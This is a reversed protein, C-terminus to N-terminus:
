PNQRKRNHFELSSPMKSVTITSTLDEHLLLKRKKVEVETMRNNPYRNIIRIVSNVKLDNQQCFDFYEKDSGQLRSVTYKEGETAQSLPLVETNGNNFVGSADPIPDGHPDTTPHGLFLSLKETLFDSTFHELQEAERHIEHMSLGFVRHLFTEWLRHKRIVGLAMKEGESTLKLERYKTYDLLNKASLKRAMDTAAANTIGLERAVTGPRTNKGISNGLTYVTKLFNETAVSILNDM